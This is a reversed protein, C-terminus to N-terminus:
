YYVSKSNSDAVIPNSGKIHEMQSNGDRKMNLVDWFGHYFLPPNYISAVM